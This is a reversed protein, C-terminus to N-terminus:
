DSFRILYYFRVQKKIKTQLTWIDDRRLYAKLRTIFGSLQKQEIDATQILEEKSVMKESEKAKILHDVARKVRDDWILKERKRKSVPKLTSFRQPDIIIDDDKQAMIEREIDIEDLGVKLIEIKRPTQKAM